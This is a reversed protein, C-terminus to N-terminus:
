SPSSDRMRHNNTRDPARRSARPPGLLAAAALAGIFGGTTSLALDSITDAYTLGLAEAAGLEGAIWEAIEWIVIAVAGFGTGIKVADRRDALRRFRWALFAGVLLVWNVFHFVDDFHSFSDYLGAVNGGLDLVFPSMALLDATAPYPTFRRRWALPVVSSAVVVIPLRWAMGKGELQDLPVVTVAVSAALLMAKLLLVLRRPWREGDIREVGTASPSCDKM